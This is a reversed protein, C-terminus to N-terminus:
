RRKIVSSDNHGSPHLINPLDRKMEWYNKGRQDIPGGGLCILDGAKGGLYVVCSQGPAVGRLPIKLKVQLNHGDFRGADDLSKNSDSKYNKEVFTIECDVLPQLHRIRCKARFPLPPPRNAEGGAIWNFNSAKIYFKLFLTIQLAVFVCSV